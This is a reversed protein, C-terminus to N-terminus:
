YLISQSMIFIYILCQTDNYYICLDVTYEKSCYLLTNRHILMDCIAKHCIMSLNQDVSGNLSVFGFIVNTVRKRCLYPTDYALYNNYKYCPVRVCQHMGFLGNCVSLPQVRPNCSQSLIFPNCLRYCAYEDRKRWLCYSENMLTNSYICYQVSWIFNSIEPFFPKAPLFSSIMLVVNKHLTRSRSLTHSPQLTPRTCRVKKNWM